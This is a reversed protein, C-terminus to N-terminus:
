IIEISFQQNSNVPLTGRLAKPVFHIRVTVNAACIATIVTQAANKQNNKRKRKRSIHYSLLTDPRLHFFRKPILRLVHL